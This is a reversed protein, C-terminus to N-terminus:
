LYIFKGQPGPQDRGTRFQFDLYDIIVKFPVKVAVGCNMPSM